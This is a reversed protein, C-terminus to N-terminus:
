KFYREIILKNRIWYSIYFGNSSYLLGNIREDQIYNPSYSNYFFKRQKWARRMNKRFYNKDKIEQEIIRSQCGDEKPILEMDKQIAHSIVKYYVLPFYELMYTSYPNQVYFKKLEKTLKEFRSTNFKNIDNGMISDSREIYHYLPKKITIVNNILSFYCLAFFLDEAFIEKNDAFRLNNNEIIERNYIMSWANWPIQYDTLENCIFSAHDRNTRLSIIESLNIKYEKQRNNVENEFYFGYSVLAEPSQILKEAVLQLLCNEVYDDSDIFVIYDGTAIDLGANRASSLGGNEKHIVHIREDKEAYEDCIKGCNDPSGDDVLILEFDTFTQALVSDICRHLYKEVKYIPVIVSIFVTSNM